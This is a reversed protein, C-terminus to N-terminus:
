LLANRILRIHPGDCLNQSSDAHTARAGGGAFAAPRFLSMEHM